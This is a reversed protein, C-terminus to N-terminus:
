HTPPDKPVDRKYDSTIMRSSGPRHLKGTGHESANPPQKNSEDTSQLISVAWKLLTYADAFTEKERASQMIERASEVKPATIDLYQANQIMNSIQKEFDNLQKQQKISLDIKEKVQTEVQQIQKELTELAILAGDMNKIDSLRLFEKRLNAYQNKYAKFENLLDRMPQPWTSALVGIQADVTKKANSLHNNLNLKATAFGQHIQNIRGIEEELWALTTPAQQVYSGLLVYSSGTAQFQKEVTAFQQFIDDWAREVLPPRSQLQSAQAHLAKIRADLAAAENQLETTGATHEEILANCESEFASLAALLNTYNAGKRVAAQSLFQQYATQLALYKHLIEDSSSNAVADLAQLARTTEGVPGLKQSVQSEAAQQGRAAETTVQVQQEIAKIDKLYQTFFSDMQAMKPEIESQLIQADSYISITSDLQAQVQQIKQSPASGDGSLRAYFDQLQPPLLFEALAAEAQDAQAKLESVSLGALQKKYESYQQHLLEFDSISHLVFAYANKQHQIVRYAKAMPLWDHSQAPLNLSRATNLIADMRQHTQDLFYADSYTHVLCAADFSSQFVVAAQQWFHAAAYGIGDVSPPRSVAEEAAALCAQVEHYLASVESFHPDNPDKLYALYQQDSEQYQQRFRKLNAEVQKQLRAVEAQNRGIQKLCEALAQQQGRLQDLLALNAHAQQRIVLNRTMHFAASFRSSHVPLSRVSSDIKRTIALAEEARAFALQTQRDISEYLVPRPWIPWEFVTITQLTHKLRRIEGRVQRYNNKEAHWREAARQARISVVLLGCLVLGATLGLPILVYVFEM